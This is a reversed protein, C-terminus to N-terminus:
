ATNNKSTSENGRYIKNATTTLEYFHKQIEERNGQKIAIEIKATIDSLIKFGMNGGVGKLKHTLEKLENDNNSKIHESIETVYTPLSNIFKIIFKNYKGPNTKMLSSIIIDSNIDLYEDKSDNEVSILYKRVVQFLIQEDLPKLLFGDCGANLSQEKYELATNATLMVIPSQYGQKRILKIAEIGSMVPMHMDMLILDFIKNSTIEVADKGNEVTIVTAGMEKLHFSILEQNDVIDEVLLITGQVQHDDQLIIDDNDEDTGPEQNLLKVNSYQGEVKNEIKFSFTSGVGSESMLSLEGGLNKVLESSITLGLGTGGYKRTTTIDAQSFTQFVVDQQENTMGIGSDNIDFYIDNNLRDYRININIFGENTFKIANGGLNILIQHLRTKDSRIKEPIPYNYNISFKLDKEGILGNLSTRVDEILEFISFETYEFELKQAEIKTFDLIDNIISLLHESNRLIIKTTREHHDAPLNPIMQSKAFGIIATLPTRIEHSMNALFMSKTETAKALEKNKDFVINSVAQSIVMSFLISVSVVMILLTLVDKMNKETVTVSKKVYSQQLLILKDLIKLNNEQATLADVIVPKIEEVADNNLLMELAKQNLPYATNVMDQVSKTLQLETENLVFKKFENFARTFEMAFTNINLREEERFFIDDSLAMKNLALSRSHISDRMIHVLSVKTNNVIVVDNFQDAQQNLKYVIISSLVIMLVIIAGFGSWIIFKVNSLLQHM